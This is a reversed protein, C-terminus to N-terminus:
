CHCNDRNPFMDEYFDTEDFYIKTEAMVLTAIYSVFENELVGKVFPIELTVGDLSLKMTKEKQSTYTFPLSYITWFKEEGEGERESNFFGLHYKEDGDSIVLRIFSGEEREIEVTYDEINKDNYQFNTKEIFQELLKSFKIEKDARTLFKTVLPVFTKAVATNAIKDIEKSLSDNISAIVDPLEFSTDLGKNALNEEIAKRYPSNYGSYFEKLTEEAGKQAYENAKKQLLDTDIVPIIQEM